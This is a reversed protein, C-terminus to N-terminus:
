CAVCDTLTGGGAGDFGGTIEFVGVETSAPVTEAAAFFCVM